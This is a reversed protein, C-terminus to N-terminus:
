VDERAFQPNAIASQPNRHLIKLRAASLPHPVEPIIHSVNVEM